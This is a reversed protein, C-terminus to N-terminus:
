GTHAILSQSQWTRMGFIEGGLIGIAKVCGWRQLNQAAPKDVSTQNRYQKHTPLASLINEESAIAVRQKCTTRGDKAYKTM